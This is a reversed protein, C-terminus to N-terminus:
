DLSSNGKMVNGSKEMLSLCLLKKKEEYKKPNEQRDKDEKQKAQEFYM